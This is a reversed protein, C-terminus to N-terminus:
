NKKAVDIAKKSYDLGYVKCSKNIILNYGLNGTNCGVELIKKNRPILNYIYKNFSKSYIKYHKEKDM